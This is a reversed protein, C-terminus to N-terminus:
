GHRLVGSAVNHAITYAYFRGSADRWKQAIAFWAAKEQASNLDYLSFVEAITSHERWSFDSLAYRDTM